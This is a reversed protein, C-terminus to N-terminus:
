ALFLYYYVVWFNLIRKWKKLINNLITDMTNRLNKINHNAETIKEFNKLDREKNEKDMTDIKIELAELREDRKQDDNKQNFLYLIGKWIVKSLGKIGVIIVGLTLVVEPALYNKLQAFIDKFDM